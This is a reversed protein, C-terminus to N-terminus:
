ERGRRQEVIVVLRLEYTNLHDYNRVYEARNTDCCPMLDRVHAQSQAFLASLRM